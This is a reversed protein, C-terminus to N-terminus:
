EEDGEQKEDSPSRAQVRFAKRSKVFSVRKRANDLYEFLSASFISISLNLGKVADILDGCGFAELPIRVDAKPNTVPEGNEDCFKQDTISQEAVLFVQGDRTVLQPRWVSITAAKDADGLYLGVVIHIDGKSNLIYGHAKKAMNKKAQSSSDANEQFCALEIVLGPFRVKVHAFSADPNSFSGDAFVVGASGRSGIGRAFDAVLKNESQRLLELQGSLEHVISDRSKDGYGEDKFVREFEESEEVTM